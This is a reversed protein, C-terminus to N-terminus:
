IYGADKISRLVTSLSVFKYYLHEAYLLVLIHLVYVIM